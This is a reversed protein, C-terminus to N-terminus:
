ASAKIEGVVFDFETLFKKDFGDKEIIEYNDWNKQLSWQNEIYKNAKGLRTINNSKLLIQSM